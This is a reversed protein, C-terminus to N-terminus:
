RGVFLRQCFGGGLKVVGRKGSEKMSSVRRVRERRKGCFSRRERRQSSV